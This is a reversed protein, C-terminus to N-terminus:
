PYRHNTQRDRLSGIHSDPRQAKNPPMLASQFGLDLSQAPGRRSASRGETLALHSACPDCTFDIVPVCIYTPDGAGEVTECAWGEPCGEEDCLRTCVQAHVQDEVAICFGSLCDINFDCPCLFPKEPSACTAQAVDVDAPGSDELVQADENGGDPVSVGVDEAGAPQGSDACAGLLFALLVFTLRSLAIM